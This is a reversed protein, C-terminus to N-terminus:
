VLDKTLFEIDTICSVRDPRAMELTYVMAMLDQVRLDEDYVSYKHGEELNEGEREDKHGVNAETQNDGPEQLSGVVSLFVVLHLM